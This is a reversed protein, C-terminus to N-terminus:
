FRAAILRIARGGAARDRRGARGGQPDFRDVRPRLSRQHPRLPGRLVPGGRPVADRRRRRGGEGGSDVDEVYLHLVVPSGGLSQPSHNHWEPREEGIMVTSDGIGLEAHMLRGEPDAMFMTEAAGFVRKYFEIANRGAGDEVILVTNVSHYGKPIHGVAM